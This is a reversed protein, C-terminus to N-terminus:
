PAEQLRVRLQLRVRDGLVFAWGDMGYDARSLTGRGILDCDVGPRACAAPELVITEARRRGRLSLMGPLAGGQHLLEDAFPASLFELQPSREADFFAAGRAVASWRASRRIRVARADLEIRVQRRGDPLRLLEGAYRPFEGAIRQGWRTRLEFGFRTHAPDFRVPAPAPQAFAGAGALALLLALALRRATGRV